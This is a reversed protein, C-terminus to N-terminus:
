LIWYWADGKRKSQIGLEKKANDVTRRGIGLEDFYEYIETCPKEGASLLEFLLETAQAKKTPQCGSGSALEEASINSTGSWKFCEGLEFVISQGTPALSSKLHAMVRKDPNEKSKGILLISRAAAPIDISGLGRYLAKAGSMKNM